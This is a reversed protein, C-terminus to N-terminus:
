QLLVIRQPRYQHVRYQSSPLVLIHVTVSESEAVWTLMVDVDPDVYSHSTKISEFDYNRHDEFLFWYELM